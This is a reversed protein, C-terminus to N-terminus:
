NKEWKVLRGKKHGPDGGTQRGAVLWGTVGGAGGGDDTGEACAPGRGNEEGDAEERVTFSRLEM